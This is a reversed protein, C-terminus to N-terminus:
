EAEVLANRCHALGRAIYYRVMRQTVQLEDAVERLTRDAFIHLLFARRCNDPLDRITTKIVELQQASLITREPGPQALWQEFLMGEDPACRERVARRRLHDVAINTAIRFLYAQLFGIADPRDLQLLRVYAEQAVDKAESESKLKVTLFNVLARNHKEFLKRVRASRSVDERPAPLPAM